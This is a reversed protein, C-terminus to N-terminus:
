ASLAVLVGAIAVFMSITFILGTWVLRERWRPNVGKFSGGQSKAKHFVGIRHPKHSWTM